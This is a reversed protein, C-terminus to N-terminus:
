SALPCNAGNAMCDRRRAMVCNMTTVDARSLQREAQSLAGRNMLFKPTTYIVAKRAAALVPDEYTEFKALVNPQLVLLSVENPREKIIQVVDKHSIGSVLKDNIKLIIDGSLLRGQEAPSGSEVNEILQKNNKVDTRLSFGYGSFNPVIKLHCLRVCNTASETPGSM